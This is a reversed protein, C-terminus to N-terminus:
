RPAASRGTTAAEGALRDLQALARDAFEGARHHQIMIMPIDNIEVSYPMTLVPGHATQSAPM